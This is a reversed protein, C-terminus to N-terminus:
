GSKLIVRGNCSPCVRTKRGLSDRGETEPNPKVSHNPLRRGIM